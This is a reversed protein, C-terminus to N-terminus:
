ASVRSVSTRCRATTRTRAWVGAESCTVRPHQRREALIPEGRKELTVALGSDGPGSESVTAAQQMLRRAEDYYLFIDLGARLALAPDSIEAAVRDGAGEVVRGRHLRREGARSPIQIFIERGARLM